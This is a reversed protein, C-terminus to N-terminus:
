KRVQKGKGKTEKMTRTAIPSRTSKRPAERVSKSRDKTQEELAPKKETAAAVAMPPVRTPAPKQLIGRGTQARLSSTSGERTPQPKAQPNSAVNTTGVTPSGRAWVSTATPKQSITRTLTTKQVVGKTLQTRISSESVETPLPKVRQDSTAATTGVMWSGGVRPLTTIPKQSKKVTSTRHRAEPVERAVDSIAVAKGMTQSSQPLIPKQIVTNPTRAQWEMTQLQMRPSPVAAIQGVTGIRTSLGTGKVLPAPISCKAEHVVESQTPADVLSFTSPCTLPSGSHPLEDYDLKVVEVMRKVHPDGHILEPYGHDRAYRKGNTGYGKERLYTRAAEYEELWWFSGVWTRVKMEPIGYQEWDEEPIEIKGAADSTWYFLSDPLPSHVCHMGNIHEISLAPVFLYASPFSPHNHPVKGSLSFGIEDILHTLRDATSSNHQCLYACRLRDRDKLPLRLSFRLNVQAEHIDSFQFDVRSCVRGSYSAKINRSRSEFHWEPPPTSPFHALVGLRRRRVVAGFTLLGHRAYASLDGWDTRGLSAIPTFLSGFTREFYATIDHVDLQPRTGQPLPIPSSNYDDYEEWNEISYFTPDYLWSGAKLDFTWDSWDDSVSVALSEDARLAQYAVQFTSDLYLFVLGDVPYRLFLENGNALEAHLIITPTESAVLGMMQAFRLSRHTSHADYFQKWVLHIVDKDIDDRPEVTVATFTRYPMQAIEVTQYRKTVRVPRMGSRFPNTDKVYLVDNISRAEDRLILDGLFFERYLNQRPMVTNSVQGECSGSRCQINTVNGAIHTFNQSGVFTLDHAHEFFTSM